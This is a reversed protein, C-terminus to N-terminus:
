RDQLNSYLLEFFADRSAADDQGVLSELPLPPIENLEDDEGEDAQSTHSAAIKDRSAYFSTFQQRWIPSEVSSRERLFEVFDGFLDFNPVVLHDDDAQLLGVELARDLVFLVRDKALCLNTAIEQITASLPLAIMSIDDETTIARGWYPFLLRLQSLVHYSCDTAALPHMQGTATRLRDVVAEVTKGMWPPLKALGKAVLEATIVVCETDRMARVSASRPANSIMAMEGVTDGDGLTVVVVEKGRITKIVEVEGSLIVYAEDGAEGERMLYDGRAFQKHVSVTRGELLADIDTSLEDVSQYRDDRSHEMAKIIIRCLEDPLQREPAREGPAIFSGAEANDLIDYISEGEYPPHLTAISYLTAGLLFIDTRCDVAGVEGSAQEPAMYAPTGKIMGDRTKLSSTDTMASILDQESDSPDDHDDEYRALGWDVLMVEGYKAVMVNDPKIDRHIIGKSHAFAVADCIKRFITLLSFITYKAVIEPDGRRLKRIIGGLEEGEIYKMSFYLKSTDVVGIDHVPIINPHELQGTIRAEDIFRKLYQPNDMMDPALVKLVNTRRLGQDYVKFVAGMGGQGIKGQVTYKDGTMNHRLFDDCINGDHEEEFTDAHTTEANAPTDQEQNKKRGFRM